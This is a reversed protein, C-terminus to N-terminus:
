IYYYYFHLAERPLDAFVKFIRSVDNSDDIKPCLSQIFKELAKLYQDVTFIFSERQNGEGHHIQNLWMSMVLKESSGVVDEIIKGVGLQEDYKQYIEEGM